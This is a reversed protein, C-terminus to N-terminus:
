HPTTPHNHPPPARAIVPHPYRPTRPWAPPVSSSVRSAASILKSHFACPYAEPRWEPRCSFPNQCERARIAGRAAANSASRIRARLFPQIRGGREPPRRPSSKSGVGPASLLRRTDGKPSSSGREISSFIAFVLSTLSSPALTRVLLLQSTERITAKNAPAM